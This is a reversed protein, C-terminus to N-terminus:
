KIDGVPKTNKLIDIDIKDQSKVLKNLKLISNKLTDTYNAFIYSLIDRYLKYTTANFPLNDLEIKKSDTEAYKLILFINHFTNRRLLLQNFVVCTNYTGLKDEMRKLTMINLNFSYKNDDIEINIKVKIVKQKMSSM